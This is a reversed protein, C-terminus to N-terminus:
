RDHTGCARVQVSFTALLSVLSLLSAPRSFARPWSVLRSSPKLKQRFLSFGWDIPAQGVSTAVEPRSRVHKLFPNHM